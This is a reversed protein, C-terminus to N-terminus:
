RDPAGAYARNQRNYEALEADAEAAQGEARLREIHALWSRADRRWEANAATETPVERAAKAMARAPEAPAPAALDVVVPADNETAQERRTQQAALARAAPPPTSEAAEAAAGPEILQSVNQVRAPSAPQKVPMGEHLVVTFVILLTAALALPAGWAPGRFVRQPTAPRIAEEAQRLVLRDLEPPPEIGDDDRRGFLPKRRALFADFEDDGGM